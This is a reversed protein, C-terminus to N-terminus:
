RSVRGPRTWGRVLRTCGSNLWVPAAVPYNFGGLSEPLTREIVGPPLPEPEPYVHIATPVVAVLLVIATPWAYRASIM